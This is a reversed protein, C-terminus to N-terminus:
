SRDRSAARTRAYRRNKWCANDLRWVHTIQNNRLQRLRHMWLTVSTQMAFCRLSAMLVKAPSFLMCIFISM